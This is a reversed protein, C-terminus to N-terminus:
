VDPEPLDIARTSMAQWAKWRKDDDPISVYKRSIRQLRGCRILFGVRNLLEVKKDIRERPEKFHFRRVVRNVVHVILIPEAHDAVEDLLFKVEIPDIQAARAREQRQEEAWRVQQRRQHIKPHEFIIM